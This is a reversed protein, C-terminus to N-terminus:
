PGQQTSNANTQCWGRIAHGCFSMARDCSKVDIGIGAKIWNKDGSPLGIHAIPVDFVRAALTTCSDFTSDGMDLLDLSLLEKIRADEEPYPPAPLWITDCQNKLAVQDMPMQQGKRTMPKRSTQSVGSIGFTGDPELQREGGIATIENNPISAM